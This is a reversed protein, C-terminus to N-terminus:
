PVALFTRAGALDATAVRVPDREAYANEATIDRIHVIQKTATLRGLGTKPGMRVPGHEWIEAYVAPLGQLAAATFAEGDYLLLHGFNAECIRMANALMAEFVPKLDGSSSSIVELVESTATRQELSETLEDTRQRLENLLRTNEIAIVA